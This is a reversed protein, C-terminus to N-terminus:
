QTRASAPTILPSKRLSSLFIGSTSDSARLYRVTKVHSFRCVAQAQALRNSGFTPGFCEFALECRRGVIERAIRVQVVSADSVFDGSCGLAGCDARRTLSLPTM